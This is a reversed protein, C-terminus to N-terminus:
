SDDRTNVVEYHGGPPLDIRVVQTSINLSESTLHKVINKSLGSARYCEERSRFKTRDEPDYLEGEYVNSMITSYGNIKVSSGSSLWSRTIAWMGKERVASIYTGVGLSHNVVAFLGVSTEYEECGLVDGIIHVSPTYGLREPNDGYFWITKLAESISVISLKPPMGPTLGRKPGLVAAFLDQKEYLANMVSEGAWHGLRM